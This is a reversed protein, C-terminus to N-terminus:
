VDLLCVKPPIVSLYHCLPRRLCHIEANIRFNITLFYFDKHMCLLSSTGPGQLTRDELLTTRQFDVPTESSLRNIKLQNYWTVHWFISRKMVMATVTFTFSDSYCAMSAWLPTLRRREWM